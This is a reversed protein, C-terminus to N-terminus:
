PSLGAASYQASIVISAATWAHSRDRAMPASSRIGFGSTSKETRATAGYAASSSFLPINAAATSGGDPASAWVLSSASRPRSAQSCASCPHAPM